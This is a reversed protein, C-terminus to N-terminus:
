VPDDGERPVHISIQLPNLRGYQCVDDGERPVHISILLLVQATSRHRFQRGGRPPRPYFNTTSPSTTPQVPRGGRPPRPYFNLRQSTNLTRM